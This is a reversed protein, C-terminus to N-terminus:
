SGIGGSGTGDTEGGKIIVSPPEAIDAQAANIRLQEMRREEAANITLSVRRGGDIGTVLCDYEKMAAEETDRTYLTEWAGGPIAGIVEWVTRTPIERLDVPINLNNRNDCKDTKVVALGFIPFLRAPKDDGKEIENILIIPEM